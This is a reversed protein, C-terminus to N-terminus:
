TENKDSSEKKPSWCGITKDFFLAPETVKEHEEYSNMNEEQNRLIVQTHKEAKLFFTNMQNTLSRWGNLHIHLDKIRHAM